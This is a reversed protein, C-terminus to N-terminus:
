FTVPADFVLLTVNKAESREDVHVKWGADRYLEAIAGAILIPAEVALQGNRWRDADALTSNIGRIADVIPRKERERASLVAAQVDLNDPRLVSVHRFAPPPAEPANKMQEQMESGEWVSMTEKREREPIRFAELEDLM